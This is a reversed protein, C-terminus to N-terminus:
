NELYNIIDRDNLMQEVCNVIAVEFSVTWTWGNLNIHRDTYEKELGDGTVVKLVVIAREDVGIAKMECYARDISLQLKKEANQDIKVNQRELADIVTGYASNTFEYLSGYYNHVMVKCFRESEKHPSANIISVPHIVNLKTMASDPISSRETTLSHSISCSSLVILLIFFMCVKALPKM